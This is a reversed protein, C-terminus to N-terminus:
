RTPDLVPAAAEPLRRVVGVELANCMPSYSEELRDRYPRLSFEIVEPLREQWPLRYPDAELTAIEASLTESWARLDADVVDGTLDSLQNRLVPLLLRNLSTRALRTRYDRVEPEDRDLCGEDLVDGHDGVLKFPPGDAPSKELWSYYALSYIYYYEGLGIEAELLAANRRQLFDALQPPLGTGTWYIKFVSSISDANCRGTDKSLDILDSETDMRGPAVFERAALFAEMSGPPIAGSPDPRFEHINGYKERVEEMTLDAQEFVQLPDRDSFFISTSLGAIILIMAGCGIGCVKLWIPIRQAMVRERRMACESVEAPRIDCVPPRYGNGEDRIYAGFRFNIEPTFHALSIAHLLGSRVRSPWQKPLPIRPRSRIGAM